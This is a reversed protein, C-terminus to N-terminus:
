GLGFQPGLRLAVRRLTDTARGNARALAVLSGLEWPRRALGAIVAGIRESGDAAIADIASRPVKGGAPDAIARVALFPVGRSWAAAAAAHSEMDVALARTARRLDDKVRGSAAVASMGAVAGEIVRVPVAADLIAAVVNKRWEEDTPFRSEDPAIVVDAVILTGPTLTPDLGGAIGFSVIATCGDDLMRLVGDRARDSDAGSCAITVNAGLASLCRVERRLGTIFGIRSV